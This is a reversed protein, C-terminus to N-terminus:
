KYHVYLAYSVGGAPECYYSWWLGQDEGMDGKDTCHKKSEYVGEKAWNALTVVETDSTGQNQEEGAVAHASTSLAAM